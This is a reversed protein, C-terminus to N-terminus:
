IRGNDAGSNTKINGPHMANINVNGDKLLKDFVIMSLLQCLKAEGYSKSGKYRRKNWLLDDMRLGWAPFRHAESNVFLIRGTGQNMFKEKLYYNIIFTSLYNTQFVLELNDQTTVKKTMYTGANHILVDIARDLKSLKKSVDHIDKLSSFDAIYYECSVGYETQIMDCLKKSKEESRNVSLIDAGKSAYKMATAYGIGSTAGTIVVLKGKCDLDCIKPDKKQNKMM